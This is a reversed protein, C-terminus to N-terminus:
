KTGDTLQYLDSRRQMGIPIATRMEDVKGLDIDCVVLDDSDDTTAVIDGWPAVVTSHGWATYHPYPSQQTAPPEVTRAPSAVLVYCQNDVARARALLEWHAPGTTM